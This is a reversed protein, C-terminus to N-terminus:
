PKCHNSSSSPRPSVTSLLNCHIESTYSEGQIGEEVKTVRLTIGNADYLVLSDLFAGLHLPAEIVHVEMPFRKSMDMPFCQIQLGESLKIVFRTCMNANPTKSARSWSKGWCPYSWFRSQHTWILSDDAYLADGISPFPDPRDGCTYVSCDMPITLHIPNSKPVKPNIVWWKRRNTQAEPNPNSPNRRLSLSADHGHFGSRREQQGIPQKSLELLCAEVLADQAVVMSKVNEDFHYGDTSIRQYASTYNVLASPSTVLFSALVTGYAQIKRDISEGKKLAGFLHLLATAVRPNKLLMHDDFDEQPTDKSNSNIWEISDTIVAVDEDTFPEGEELLDLLDLTDMQFADQLRECLQIDTQVLPWRSVTTAMVPLHVVSPIM